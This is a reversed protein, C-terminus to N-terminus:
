RIDKLGLREVTEDTPIGNKDWGRLEYFRDLCAEFDARDVFSRMGEAPGSAVPQWFRPPLEDDKRSVGERVNFLRTLTEVREAFVKVSEEDYELGTAGNLLRIKQNHSLPLHYTFHCVVLSDTLHKEDRAKTMSEVVDIASSIPKDTTSPWGRLHSAGVEATAYSLGMGKKGRPDWAAVSLGKVHVALEESGKGIREAARRVGNALIDGIGERGAIMQLLEMAAAGDGFRMSFGLDDETIIGREFAEMAFALVSGAAITDIGLDDCLHNLQLLIYPDSIGLNGSLMAETEYESTVEVAMKPARPDAVRHAHTCRMICQPCSLHQGSYWEHMAEPQVKENEEFFSTQWNRTPFQGRENSVEILFSTGYRRFDFNWADTAMDKWSTTVERNVESIADSDYAEIMGSGRVVVAKLNKSGMVAGPGGRGTQHALESGAAAILSLNEGAPGIVYVIHDDGFRERLIRTSDHIGRGWLDEASELRLSDDELVLVTPKDAKGKVCLVDYGSKKIERGLAHGCHSDLYLGTLPSKTVLTWRAVSPGNLGQMPGTLFFLVNEPRLPDVGAELERYLLYAGLGKGGLFQEYVSTDLSEENTSGTSLDVWLIKGTWCEHTM